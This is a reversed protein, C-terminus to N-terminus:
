KQHDLINSLNLYGSDLAKLLAVITEKDAIMEPIAYPNEGDVAFPATDFEKLKEETTYPEGVRNNVIRILEEEQEKEAVYAVLLVRDTELKDQLSKLENNEHNYKSLLVDIAWHTSLLSKTIIELNNM